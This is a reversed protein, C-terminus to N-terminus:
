GRAIFFNGYDDREPIGDKDEEFTATEVSMEEDCSRCYVTSTGIPIYHNGKDGCSCWYRCKYRKTGDEDEKIGTKWHEPEDDKSGNSFSTIKAMEAIPMSTRSEQGLMPLRRSVPSPDPEDTKADEVKATKYPQYVNLGETLKKIREFDEDFQQFPRADKQSNAPTVKSNEESIVEIGTRIPNKPTNVPSQISSGLHQFFGSIVAHENDQSAGKMQLTSKKDGNFVEVLVEM